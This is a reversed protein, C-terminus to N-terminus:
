GRMLAIASRTRRDVLGRYCLIQGNKPVAFAESRVESLGIVDWKIGALREFLVELSRELYHELMLRQWPEIGITARGSGTIRPVRQQMVHSVAAM